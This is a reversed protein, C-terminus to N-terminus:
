QRVNVEEYTEGLTESTNIKEKYAEEQLSERLKKRRRVNRGRKLAGENEM